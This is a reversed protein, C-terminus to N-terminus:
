QKKYSLFVKDKEHYLTYDKLFIITNFLHDKKAIVTRNNRERKKM